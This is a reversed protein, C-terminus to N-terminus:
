LGDTLWVNVNKDIREEFVVVVVRRSEGIRPCWQIRTDLEGGVFLLRNAGHDTTQLRMVLVGLDVVKLDIRRAPVERDVVLSTHNSHLSHQVVLGDSLFIQLEAHEDVVGSHRLQARFGRHVHFQDIQVVIGWHEILGVVVDRNRLIELEVRENQSHISGVLVLTHLM